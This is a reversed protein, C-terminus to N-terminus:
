PTATQRALTQALQVIAARAKADDIAVFAAVLDAGGRMAIMRMILDNDPEAAGGNAHSSGDKFFWSVPRGFIRAIESLRSVSVRNTAKEYKQVQQFALGLKDGLETQSLGALHRGARIKQGAYIDAPHRTHTSMLM